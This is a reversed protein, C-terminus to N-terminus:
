ELKRVSLVNANITSIKGETLGYFVNLRLEYREGAQAPGINPVDANTKVDFTEIADIAIGSDDAVIQILEFRFDVLSKLSNEYELLGALDMTEDGLQLRFDEHYFRSELLDADVNELARLYEHFNEKTLSQALLPGNMSVFVLFVSLLRSFQVKNRM